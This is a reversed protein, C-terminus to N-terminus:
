HVVRLSRRAAVAALDNSLLMAGGIVAASWDSDAGPIRVVIRDDSDHPHQAALRLTGNAEFRVVSHMEALRAVARALGAGHLVDDAM